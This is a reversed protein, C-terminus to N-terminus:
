RRRKGRRTQAISVVATERPPAKVSLSTRWGARAGTGFEIVICRPDPTHDRARVHGTLRRQQPRNADRPGRSVKFLHRHQNGRATMSTRLQM